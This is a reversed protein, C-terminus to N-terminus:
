DPGKVQNVSLQPFSNTSPTERPLFISWLPVSNVSKKKRSAALSLGGVGPGAEQEFWVTSGGQEL